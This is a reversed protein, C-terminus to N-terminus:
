KFSQITKEWEEASHDDPFFHTITITGREAYGAVFYGDENRSVVNQQSGRYVARVRPNTVWGDDNTDVTFEFGNRLNGTSKQFALCSLYIRGNQIYSQAEAILDRRQGNAAFETIDAGLWLDLVYIPERNQQAPLLTPFLIFAIAILLPLKKM